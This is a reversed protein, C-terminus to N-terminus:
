PVSYVNVFEDDELDQGELQKYIDDLVDGEDNPSLFRSNMAAIRNVAM